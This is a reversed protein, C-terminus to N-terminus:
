IQMSASPQTRVTEVILTLDKQAVVRVADGADAGEACRAEWIEGSLRVQGDPRCARLVTGHAGILTEAGVRVRQRRVRRQWFAVEGLGLVIAAACAFYNWPSPVFLLAVIAVLFFVTQVYSADARPM